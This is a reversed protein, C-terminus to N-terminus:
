EYHNSHTSIVGRLVRGSPVYYDVPADYKNLAGTFDCDETHLGTFVFLKWWYIYAGFLMSKIIFPQNEVFTPYLNIVINPNINHIGRSHAYPVCLHQDAECRNKSACAGQFM